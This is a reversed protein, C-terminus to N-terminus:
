EKLAGAIRLLNYIESAILHPQSLHLWRMEELVVKPSAKEMDGTLTLIYANNVWQELTNEIMEKFFEERNPFDPDERKTRM